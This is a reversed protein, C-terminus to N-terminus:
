TKEELVQKNTKKSGWFQNATKAQEGRGDDRTKNQSANEDIANCPIVRVRDTSHSTDIVPRRHTNM